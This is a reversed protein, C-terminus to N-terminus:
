MHSYFGDASFKPICDQALVKQLMEDELAVKKQIVECYLDNRMSSMRKELFNIGTMNGQYNKGSMNIGTTFKQMESPKINTLMLNRNVLEDFQNGDTAGGSMNM